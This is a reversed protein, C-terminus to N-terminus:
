LASKLKWYPAGKVIIGNMASWGMFLVYEGDVTPPTVYTWASGNWYLMAGTDINSMSWQSMQGASTISIPGSIPDTSSKGILYMNSDFWPMFITGASSDPTISLNTFLNPTTPHQLTIQNTTIYDVTLRGSNPNFYFGASRYCIGGPSTPSAANGFLVPYDTNTTSISTYAVNQDTNTVTNAITITGSSESLSIGTGASFGLANGTITTDLKQTGNVKVARWTNTDTVTNAITITGNAGTVSIGTGASFTLAGTGTGTGLLETTNVKINRWTNSNSDYDATAQWGGQNSNLASRYTLQILTSAAYHTTLNTANYYCKKWIGPIHSNKIKLWTQSATVTTNDDNTLTRTGTGGSGAISPLFLITLGDYLETVQEDITGTWSGRSGSGIVYWLNNIYKRHEHCAAAAIGETYTYNSIDGSTLQVHGYTGITGLGYTSATSSHLTPAYDSHTHDGLAVTTSSTGTPITFALAGAGGNATATYTLGSWSGTTHYYNTNTVSETKTGVSTVHGYDDVILKNIYTRVDAGASNLSAASSTDEHAINIVGSASTITIGGNQKINVTGATTTGYVASSNAQIGRYEHSTLYGSHTHNGIAVTTSTTGTPVYLDGVGNYGSAIKLGANYAPVHYGDSGGGTNTVTCAITVVGNSNADGTLAIGAGASLTLATSATSLVQTNNVYIVRHEMATLYGTHTHAAAAAEGNDYSRTLALAGSVLKVHGYNATTGGGYTASSTAAHSKPAAYDTYNNQDLVIYRTTGATDSVYLKNSTMTLAGSGSGSAQFIISPGWNSGNNPRNLILQKAWGEVAVTVSGTVTGGTTPLYGTNNNDAAWYISSGNSKLVYGDTGASYTTGNSSTPALISTLQLTSTYVPGIFRSPGSVVLDKLQAM